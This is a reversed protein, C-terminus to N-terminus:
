RNKVKELANKGKTVEGYRYTYIKTKGNKDKYKVEHIHPHSKKYAPSHTPQEGQATPM